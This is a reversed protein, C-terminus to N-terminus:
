AGWIVSPDMKTLDATCTRAMVGALQETVTRIFSDVGEAGEQRLTPIMARGISVATAGLALAKYVDMGSEVGCDLFIPIEGGIVKAIRPLIMLPPVAYDMIGHHHSVVIGKVGAELCKEADKESLVGKVVFPLSTAQVFEKLEGLSKGTMRQGVVVDYTGNASFSHDLDMGLALCGCKEAHGIRQIIYDNNEYPKIIKITDAGTATIEELEEESGMGAWNVANAYRAGKAMEVMGHQKENKLHSLASMMVPTDFTKGYLSLETSPLVSDIHRMEVLLSDFYERTIRNSDGAKKKIEDEAM